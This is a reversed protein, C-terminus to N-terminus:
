LLKYSVLSSKLTTFARHTLRAPILYLFPEVSLITIMKKYNRSRNKIHSWKKYGQLTKWYIQSLNIRENYRMKFYPRRTFNSNWWNAVFHKNGLFYIFLCDGQLIRCLRRSISFCSSGSMKDASWWSTNSPWGNWGFYKNGLTKLPWKRDFETLNSDLPWKFDIHWIRTYLDDPTLNSFLKSLFKSYSKFHFLALM